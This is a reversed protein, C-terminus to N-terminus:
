SGCQLINVSAIHLVGMMKDRLYFNVLLKLGINVGNFFLGTLGCSSKFQCTSVIIPFWLVKLLIPFLLGAASSLTLM